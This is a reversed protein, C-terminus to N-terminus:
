LDVKKKWMDHLNCKMIVYVSGTYDAPFDFSARGSPRKRDFSIKRIEKMNMDLIVITEAYHRKERQEAFPIKVNITKRDISKTVTVDLEHDIAQAEWHGPNAASHFRVEHKENVVDTEGGQTCSIIAVTVSATLAIVFFRMSRIKKNEM